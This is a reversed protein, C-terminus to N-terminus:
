NSIEARKGISTYSNQKLEHSFDTIDPSYARETSSDLSTNFVFRAIGHILIQSHIGSVARKLDMM